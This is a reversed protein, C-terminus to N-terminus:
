GVLCPPTLAQICRQFIAAGAHHAEDILVLGFPPLRELNADVSQVTAFVLGEWLEPREGGALHQTQLWKPLQYWFNRHLQEVLERTHPSSSREPLSFLGM